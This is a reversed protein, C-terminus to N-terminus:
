LSMIVLVVEVQSEAVDNSAVDSVEAPAQPGSPEGEVVDEHTELSKLLGPNSEVDGPLANHGQSTIETLAIYEEGRDTSITESHSAVNKELDEATTSSKTSRKRRKPADSAASISERQSYLRSLSLRPAWANFINHIM